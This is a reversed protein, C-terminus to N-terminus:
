QKFCERKPIRVGDADITYPPTCNMKPKPKPRPIYPIPKPGVRHQSADVSPSPPSVPPSASTGPQSSVDVNPLGVGASPAPSVPAQSAAPASVQPERMADIESDGKRFHLVLLAVVAVLAVVAAAGIVAPGASTALSRRSRPPPLVSSPSTPPVSALVPASPETGRPAAGEASEVASPLTADHASPLTADHASPLTADHASPLTADGPRAGAAPEAPRVETEDSGAPVRLAPDSPAPPRASHRARAPAADSDRAPDSWAEVQARFERQRELSAEGALRVWQAVDSRTAPTCVAALARAFEAATSFREDRDARLARLVVDDLQASGRGSVSSPRAHDGAQVRSVIDGPDVGDHLRENSLAEWLTVGAGYLDVRRDLELRRLQEFALYGLKGKIDGTYTAGVREAAHAVGFDIVRTVGDAGVLMNHPSVDRHVLQLPKNKEDLAEHAAHLGDLADILIAVAIDVPVAPGGGGWVASLAALSLGPVYEMVVLLEGGAAVVDLVSIVNPHTIRATLRAEDLLMDRFYPDRAYHPHHRKIAVVKSFGADGQVRGLHVSAMGGRAIADFLLYRGVTEPM